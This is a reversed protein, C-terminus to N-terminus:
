IRGAREERRIRKYGSLPPGGSWKFSIVDLSDGNAEDYEDGEDYGDAEDRHRLALAVEILV